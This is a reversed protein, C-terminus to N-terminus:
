EQESESRLLPGSAKRCKQNGHIWAENFGSIHINGRRSQKQGGGDHSDNNHIEDTVVTVVIIIHM